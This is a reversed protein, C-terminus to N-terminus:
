VEVNLVVFNEEKNKTINKVIIVFDKEIILCKCDREIEARLM